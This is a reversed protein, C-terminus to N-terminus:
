VFCALNLHIDRTYMHIIADCYMNYSFKLHEEIFNQKTLLLRLQKVSYADVSVGGIIFFMNIENM